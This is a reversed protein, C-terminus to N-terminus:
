SIIWPHGDPDRILYQKKGEGFDCETLEFGLEKSRILFSNINGTKLHFQHVGEQDAETSSTENPVLHFKINGLNGIYRYYEKTNMKFSIEEFDIEFLESYFKVMKKLHATAIDIKEFEFNSKM